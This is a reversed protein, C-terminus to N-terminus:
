KAKGRSSSKIFHKAYEPNTIEYTKIYITQSSAMGIVGIKTKHDASPRFRLIEKANVRLVYTYRNIGKISTVGHEYPLVEIRTQIGKDDVLTIVTKIHTNIDGESEAKAPSEFGFKFLTKIWKPMM